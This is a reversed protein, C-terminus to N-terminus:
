FQFLLCAFLLSIINWLYFYIDVLVHVYDKKCFLQTDLMWGLKTIGKMASCCFISLILPLHKPNTSTTKFNSSLIVLLKLHTFFLSVFPLERTLLFLFSIILRLSILILYFIMEGIKFLFSYETWSQQVLIWLRLAMHEAVLEYGGRQAEMSQPSQLGGPEETMPIIWALISCHTAM